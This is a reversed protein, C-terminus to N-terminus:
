PKTLCMILKESWRIVAQFYMAHAMTEADMDMSIQYSKTTVPGHLCWYPNQLEQQLLTTYKDQLTFADGNDNYTPKELHMITNANAIHIYVKPLNLIRITQIKIQQRKSHSVLILNM